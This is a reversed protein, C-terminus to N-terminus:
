KADEKGARPPDEKERSGTIGGREKKRKKPTISLSPTEERKKEPQM